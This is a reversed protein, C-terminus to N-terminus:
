DRGRQMETAIETLSERGRQITRALSERGRIWDGDDLQIAADKCRAERQIAHGKPFSARNRNIYGDVWRIGDLDYTLKAINGDAFLKVFEDAAARLREPM